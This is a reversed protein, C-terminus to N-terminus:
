IHYKEILKCDDVSDPNSIRKKVVAGEWNAKHARMQEAYYETGYYAFSGYNHVTIIWFLKGQWDPKNLEHFKKKNIENLKINIKDFINNINKLEKEM